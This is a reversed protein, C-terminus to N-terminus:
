TSFKTRIMTFLEATNESYFPPELTLMIFALVDVAWFDVRRDHSGELVEPALYTVTGSMSMSRADGRLVASLGFDILQIYGDEQLLINELKLDRYVVNKEHMHELAILVQALYFAVASEHLPQHLQSVYQVLSGGGVFNM